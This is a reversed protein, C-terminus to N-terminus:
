MELVELQGSKSASYLDAIVMIWASAPIDISAGQALFFSNTATGSEAATNVVTGTTASFAFRIDCGRATLNVTRTGTTLQVPKSTDTVLITRAGQARKLPNVQLGDAYHGRVRSWGDNSDYMYGAAPPMTVGAGNYQMPMAVVSNALSDAAQTSSALTTTMISGWQSMMLSIVQNATVSSPARYIGGQLLPNGAPTGGSAVPGQMFVGNVTTRVRDWSVGNFGVMGYMPLHGSGGDPPFNLKASTNALGDGATDGALWTNTMLAGFTNARLTVRQGTSVSTGNGSVYNAGLPIPNGAAAVGSAVPGQAFQGSANGRAKWDRWMGRILGSLGTFTSEDTAPASSDIGGVARWMGRLIGSIPASSTEAAAVAATNGGQIATMEANTIGSGGGGSVELNARAPEETLLTGTTENYWRTNGVKTLTGNQLEWVEVSKLYDGVDGGTVATKVRFRDVLFEWDEAGPSPGGGNGTNTAIDELVDLMNRRDKTIPRQEYSM